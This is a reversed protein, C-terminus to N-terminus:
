KQTEIICLKFYSLPLPAYLSLVEIELNLFLYLHKGCHFLLTLVSNKDKAHGM